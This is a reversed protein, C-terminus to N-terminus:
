VSDLINKKEIETCLLSDYVGNNLCLYKACYNYLIIKKKYIVFNNTVTYSNM